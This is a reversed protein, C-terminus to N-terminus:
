ATVGDGSSGHSALGRESSCRSWRERRERRAREGDPRGYLMRDVIREQQVSSVAEETMAEYLRSLMHRLWKVELRYTPDEIYRSDSALELVEPHENLTM